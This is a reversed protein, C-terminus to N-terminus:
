LSPAVPESDRCRVGGGRTLRGLRTQVGARHGLGFGGETGPGNGDEAPRVDALGRQQVREKPGLEGGDARLRLGTPVAEEAHHVAGAKLQAEQVGGTPGSRGASVGERGAHHAVSALGEVGGIEDHEHDLGGPRRPLDFAVDDALDASGIRKRWGDGDDILDVGHPLGGEEGDDLGVGLEMGEPLDYGDADVAVVAEIDEDVADDGVKGFGSGEERASWSVSRVSRKM